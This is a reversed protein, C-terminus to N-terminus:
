ESEETESVAQSPLASPSLRHGEMSFLFREAATARPASSAIDLASPLRPTPPVISARAQPLNTTTLSPPAHRSSRLGGNSRAAPTPLAPEMPDGAGNLPIGNGINTMPSDKTITNTSVTVYDGPAIADDSGFDILNVTEAPPNPAQKPQSGSPFATNRIPVTPLSRIATSECSANQFAAFRATPSKPAVTELTRKPPGATRPVTPGCQLCYDRTSFNTYQCDPCVWDNNKPDYDVIEVLQEEHPAICDLCGFRDGQVFNRVQADYRLRNWAQAAYSISPFELIMGNLTPVKNKYSPSKILHIQVRADWLEAGLASKLVKPPVYGGNVNHDTTLVLFRGINTGVDRYFESSVLGTSFPDYTMTIAQNDLQLVRNARFFRMAKEAGTFTVMAHYTRKTSSEVVEYSQIARTQQKKVLSSVAKVTPLSSFGSFIITRGKPTIADLEDQIAKYRRDLTNAAGALKQTLDIIRSPAAHGSDDSM